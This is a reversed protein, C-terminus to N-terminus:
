ARGTFAKLITLSSFDQPRKSTHTNRRTTRSSYLELDLGRAIPDQSVNGQIMAGLRRPCYRVRMGRTRRGTTDAGQKFSEHDSPGRVKSKSECGLPCHRRRWGRPGLGTTLLHEHDSPGRANSDLNVGRLATDFWGADRVLM